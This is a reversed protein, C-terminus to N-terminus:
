SQGEQALKEDIEAKAKKLAADLADTERGFIQTKYESDVVRRFDNLMLPAQDIYAAIYHQSQMGANHILVIEATIWIEHGRYSHKHQM